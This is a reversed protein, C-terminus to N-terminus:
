CLDNIVKDCSLENLWRKCLIHLVHPSDGFKTMLEDLVCESAQIQDSMQRAVQQIWVSLYTLLSSNMELM